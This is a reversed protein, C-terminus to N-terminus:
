RAITMNHNRTSIPSEGRPSQEAVVTAPEPLIYTCKFEDNSWDWQEGTSADWTLVATKQKFEDEADIYGVTITQGEIDEVFRNPVQRVEAPFIKNDSIRIFDVIRKELDTSLAM